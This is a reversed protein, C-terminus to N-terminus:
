DRRTGKVASFFVALLTFLNIIHITHSFSGIVPEPASSWSRPSEIQAPSMGAASLMFTFLTSAMAVGLAGGTRAATATMGSASGIKDMSVSGLIASQNPSNFLGWGLGWLALPFIIILVPSHLGLSAVLFQGAVIVSCGVTCLLRSGVRDSLSGAIPAMIMIIISDAVIIGGVQAPSFGMLNQLYFPLLFNIASQSLAVFLLSLISASFLRDRFLHLLLIPTASRLETIILLALAVASFSITLLFTPHHWGLRPLQDIAYIFLCNTVLLLAAGLFDVSVKENEEKTEPIMKWALYAGWLGIPVNIYFIWRWGVTDILFGGLSPGTIFGVHFAMSTVGLAKGREERPVSISAIARGNASIMSGGIAQVARFFILQAPSQAIGCLASGIVFLLFGSSYFRRRGFLDGLRGMTIVLGILILDYILLTWQITTLHTHFSETLTPLAVLLARQDLGVIAQGICVNLLILRITWRSSTQNETQTM